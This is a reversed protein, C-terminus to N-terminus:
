RVRRPRRGQAPWRVVVRGIVTAVGHSESDGGAFANDSTLWWGDTGADALRSARKVVYRDPLARFMALVVDGPRVRGGCRVLVLDGDRLTPVMSPGVVRVRQWRM